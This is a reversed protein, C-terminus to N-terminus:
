RKLNSLVARDASEMRACADIGEPRQELLRTAGDPARGEAATAAIQRAQGAAHCSALQTRLTTQSREAAQNLEAIRAEYEARQARWGAASVGLAIALAM